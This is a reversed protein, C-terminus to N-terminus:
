SRMQHVGENDIVVKPGAALGVDIPDYLAWHEDETGQYMLVCRPKGGWKIELDPLTERLIRDM